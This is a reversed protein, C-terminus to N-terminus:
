GADALEMLTIVQRGSARDVENSLVSFSTGKDLVVESEPLASFASVDKGQKADVVFQINGPFDRAPDSTISPFAPETRIQGPVYSAIQAPSLEAGRFTVGPRDPLKSLATSLAAVRAAIEPDV